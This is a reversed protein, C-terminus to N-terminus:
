AGRAGRLGCVLALPSVPRPSRWYGLNRTRLCELFPFTAIFIPLGIPLEVIPSPTAAANATATAKGGAASASAAAATDMRPRSMGVAQGLRQSSVLGLALTTHYLLQADPSLGSRGLSRAAECPARTM